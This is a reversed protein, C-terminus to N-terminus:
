VFLEELSSRDHIIIYPKKRKKMRDIMDQTGSTAGDGPLFALLADAYDAM